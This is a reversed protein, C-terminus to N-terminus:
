FSIFKHNNTKFIYFYSGVLMYIPRNQQNLEMKSYGLYKWTLLLFFFVIDDALLSAKFTFLTIMLIQTDQTDMWIEISFIFLYTSITVVYVTLSFYVKVLTVFLVAQCILIINRHIKLMPDPTYIRGRGGKKEINNPIRTGISTKKKNAIPSPKWYPNPFNKLSKPLIYM